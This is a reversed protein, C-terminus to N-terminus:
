AIQEPGIVNASLTIGYCDRDLVIAEAQCEEIMNSAVVSGYTNEIVVGRGLHNDLNNGSM